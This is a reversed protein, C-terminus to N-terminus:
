TEASFTKRKGNGRKLFVGDIISAEHLQCGHEFGALDLSHHLTNQTELIFLNDLSILSYLIPTRFSLKKQRAALDM